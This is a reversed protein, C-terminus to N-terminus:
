GARPEIAVQDVQVDDVAIPVQGEVSLARHSLNGRQVSQGLVVAIDREM